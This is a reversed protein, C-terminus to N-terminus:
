STWLTEVMSHHTKHSALDFVHIPATGLQLQLFATVAVVPDSLINHKPLVVAIELEQALHLFCFRSYKRVNLLPPHSQLAQFACKVLLYAIRLSM